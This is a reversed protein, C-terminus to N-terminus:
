YSVMGPTFADLPNTLMLQAEQKIKQVTYKSHNLDYAASM